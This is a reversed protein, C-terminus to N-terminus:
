RRERKKPVAQNEKKIWQDIARPMTYVTNYWAFRLISEPFLWDIEM